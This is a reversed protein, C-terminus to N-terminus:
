TIAPAKRLFTNDALQKLMFDAVDARSIRGAKMKPDTGFKYNGIPPDNTLGSPRVIVWELGSQQLHTEMKELDEMAKKLAPVTKMIVKFALPVQNKSDGVGLSSIAIVRKVGNAQMAQIINKVGNSIIGDPNNQSTGLASLVADAGKVTQMVQDLNLVDGEIVTLKPNQFEMKAPTRALVTIEHGAALGMEVLHRGTGGTAGFIALKM